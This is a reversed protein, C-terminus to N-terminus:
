RWRATRRGHIEAESAVPRNAPGVWNGNDLQVVPRGDETVVGVDALREGSARESLVPKPELENVRVMNKDGTAVHHRKSGIQVGNDIERLNAGV